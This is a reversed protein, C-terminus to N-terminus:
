QNAKGKFYNIVEEDGMYCKSTAGDWVFPVGVDGSNINCLHAKELLLDSEPTEKDAFVQKKDIKLKQEM